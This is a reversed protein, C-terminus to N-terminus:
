SLESLLDGHGMHPTGGDRVGVGGSACLLWRVFGVTLKNGTFESSGLAVRPVGM